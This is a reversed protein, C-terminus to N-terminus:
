WRGPLWPPHRYASDRRNTTQNPQKTQNTIRDGITVGSSKSLTLQEIAQALPITLEIPQTAVTVVRSRDSDLSELYGIELTFPGKEASFDHDKVTWSLSDELRENPGLAQSQRALELAEASGASRLVLALQHSESPYDRDTKNELTYQIVMEDGPIAAPSLLTVTLAIDDAQPQLSLWLLLGAVVLGFVGLGVKWSHPLRKMVFGSLATPSDPM